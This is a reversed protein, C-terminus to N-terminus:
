SRGRRCHWFWHRMAALELLVPGAGPPAFPTFGTASPQNCAMGVASNDVPCRFLYLHLWQPRPSITSAASKMPTGAPFDAAYFRGFEPFALPTAWASGSGLGAPSTAPESPTSVLRTAGLATLSHRLSLGSWSRKPPPSLRLPLFIQKETLTRTRTGGDAGGRRRDQWSPSRRFRQRWAKNSLLSRM